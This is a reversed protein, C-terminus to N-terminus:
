RSTAARRRRRSSLYGRSRRARAARARNLALRRRRRRRRSSAPPSPIHPVLALARARARSRARGSAQGTYGEDVTRYLQYPSAKEGPQFGYERPDRRAVDETTLYRVCSWSGSRNAPLCPYDENKHALAEFEAARSNARLAAEAAAADEVVSGCPPIRRVCTRGCGSPITYELLLRFPATMARVRFVHGVFSSQTSDGGATILGADQEHGSQDVWQVLADTPLESILQVNQAEGSASSKVKTETPCDSGTAGALALALVLARVM